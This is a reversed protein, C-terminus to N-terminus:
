RANISLSDFFPKVYKEATAAASHPYDVIMLLLDPEALVLRLQASHTATNMMLDAAPKHDFTHRIVSKAIVPAGQNQVQAFYHRASEAGQRYVFRSVSFRIGEPSATGIAFARMVPEDSRIASTTSDNFKHPLRVSFHGETSRATIWGSSDPTGAQTRHMTVGPPGDQGFASTLWIAPMLITVLLTHRLMDCRWSARRRAHAPRHTM